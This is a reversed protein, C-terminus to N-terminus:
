APTLIVSFPKFHSKQSHARILKPEINPSYSFSAHPMSIRGRVGKAPRGPMVFVQEYKCLGFQRTAAKALVCSTCRSYQAGCLDARKVYLKIRKPTEM